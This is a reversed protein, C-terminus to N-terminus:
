ISVWFVYAISIVILGILYTLVIARKRRLYLYISPMMILAYFQLDNAVFGAWYIGPFDNWPIVNQVFLYISWWYQELPRIINFEVVNYFAPGNGTYVFISLTFLVIIYTPFALRLWRAIIQYLVSRATLM